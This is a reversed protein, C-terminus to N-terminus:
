KLQNLDVLSPKKTPKANSITAPATPAVPPQAIPAFPVAGTQAPSNPTTITQAPSSKKVNTEVQTDLNTKTKTASTTPPDPHVMYVSPASVVTTLANPLAFPQLASAVDPATSLSRSTASGNTMGQAPLSERARTSGHIFYWTLGTMVILASSAAMVFRSSRRSTVLTKVATTVSAATDATAADGSPTPTPATPLAPASQAPNRAPKSGPVQVHVRPPGFEAIAWALEAVNSFRNERRKELCRMIAAELKAPVDQRFTSLPPPPDMTIGLVLEHMVNTQWPARGALLQYLIIGISWIDSRADVTKSSKLQEPPMYLPSGLVADEQTLTLAPRGDDTRENTKSIGFDLVKVCAEGDPTTTLFLNAPKLDRHIIGIAHAEAIAECTQLVYHVADAIELPGNMRLHHSLDHGELYEMVMYPAENELQGVDLVRAVHESRLRVAARAERLFRAVTEPHDPHLLFKIAVRQALQLHMAQAVVGMGGRGLIQEIRYKGVLTDGINPMDSTARPDDSNNMPAERREDQFDSPLSLGTSM